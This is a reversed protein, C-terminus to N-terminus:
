DTLRKAGDPPSEDVAGSLSGTQRQEAVRRGPDKDPAVPAATGSGQGPQLECSRLCFRFGVCDDADDPRGANRDASRAGWAGSIWAGGRLVRPLDGDGGTILPDTVPASSMQQQWVDACWEWVNGHMEYFGWPNAPLSKVPLTKEQYLGKEGGSYPYSGNYNVQEPTINAGFSFPTDTGARCAYEWEADSPLRASLGPLLGNLRDIFLQADHWSVQEVPHEPNDKFRSPNNGMVALWFAQTVTTDALWFGHTLTVQHRTETGKGEEHGGWEREPEDEASGMWFTGPEVWRLRQTVQKVRLDVYLGFTDEGFLTPWRWSGKAETTAPQWFVELEQNLWPIRSTLGKASWGIRSAWSPKLIAELELKLGRAEFVATENESLTVTMSKQLVDTKSGKADALSLRPPFAKSVETKFITVVPDDEFSCPEVTMQGQDGVQVIQWAQTERAASTEDGGLVWRLRDPNFGDPLQKPWQGAKIEAEHATAYIVYALDELDKLDSNWITTPMSALVTRCQMRLAHQQASDSGSRLGMACLRKFYERVASDDQQELVSRKFKELQRLGDYAWTHHDEVIGWFLKAEKSGAYQEQFRQQYDGAVEPQVCIGLGIDRMAPHNWLVAELDSSGWQMAVRLRRLLGTDILPLPSLWILIDDLTLATPSPKLTFGNRVPHRSVPYQDNFANPKFQQCFLRDESSGSVPSLTLIPSPHSQLCALQRRWAIIARDDGVGLDGLILVSVDAPPTQWLQWQDTDAAPWPLCYCAQEGLTDEDFRHAQVAEQGLLTQLQRVLGEFDAWYPELRSSADVIIQLRQPWRRHQRKPLRQLANGQGLQKILQRYDLSHGTRAQALSNFLLPLLRAIPMLPRPPAFRYTGGAQATLRMDPDSLYAPEVDDNRDTETKILKNIRLFRAPPRQPATTTQPSILTISPVDVKVHVNSEIADEPLRTYGFVEALKSLAQEDEAQLLALRGWAM